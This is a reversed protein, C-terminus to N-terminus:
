KNETLDALSRRSKPPYIKITKKPATLIVTRSEEEGLPGDSLKVSELSSARGKEKKDEKQFETSRTQSTRTKSLKGIMRPEKNFLYTFVNCRNSLTSLKVYFGMKIRLITRIELPNKDKM